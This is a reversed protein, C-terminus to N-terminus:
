QGGWLLFAAWMAFALGLILSATDYGIGYERKRPYKDSVLNLLAM